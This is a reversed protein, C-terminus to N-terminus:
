IGHMLKDTINHWLEKVHQSFGYQSRRSPEACAAQSVIRDTWWALSNVRSLYLNILFLKNRCFQVNCLLTTNTLQYESHLTTYAHKSGLNTPKQLSSTSYFFQLCFYARLHFIHIREIEPLRVFYNSKIILKRSIIATPSTFSSSLFPQSFFGEKTKVEITENKYGVILM